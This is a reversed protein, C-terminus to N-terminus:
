GGGGRLCSFPFARPPAARPSPLARTYRQPSAGLSGASPTWALLLLLLLLLLCLGHSNLPLASKIPAPICLLGSPVMRKWAPGITEM